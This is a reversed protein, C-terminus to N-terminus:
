EGNVLHIFGHKDILTGGLMEGRLRYFFVGDTHLLGNFDYGDWVAVGTQDTLEYVLNGWRNLIQIDYTKFSPYPLVVLDNIGDGNPTFVNPVWIDPDSVYITILATDICGLDDIVVLSIEQAGGTSFTINQNTNQWFTNTSDPFIWTWSQIPNISVSADTLQVQQNINAYVPTAAIQAQLGSLSATLPDLLYLIQCGATDYVTVSPNYTGTSPYFYSFQISDAIWVGNGLNWSVSDINAPNLITFLAGQACVTNDQILTPTGLPGGISVYNSVTTDDTCGYQDTISFLLTFSGSTVLTNDPNQLVSSNGNGFAWNWNQVTGISQSADTFDCFLPPCSYEGNANIAAGSFTFNPIARPVSILINQVLSDKCGNVDTVVLSIPFSSSLNNNPASQHLLCLSDTTSASGNIYWQYTLPGQGTSLSAIFSSDLECIVTDPSMLASPKTLTIQVTAPNSICGNIDTATIAATFVGNGVFTHNIAQNVSNTNVTSNNDSFTTSFSALPLGNTISYSTNTFSVPFPSCGAYNAALLGAVPKNAVFITQSSSSTCGAANFVLLSINYTGSAPYLYSVNPGNHIQQGNGFTYFWDNIPHGSFTTSLNSLNIADGKCITDDPLLFNSHLQSITVAMTISDSCGTTYNHVVQEIQYSGYNNYSHTTNGGNPLDLQANNFYTYPTNDNWEYHIAVSDTLEGDLATNQFQFQVPFSTPNCVLNTNPSFMAIPALVYLASDITTSDICGRFNVYLTIDVYGTDQSFQFNPDDQASIGQSFDWLYSIESSDYPVSIYFESTFEVDTKACTINPNYTFSVSDIDGVTVYPTKIITDKCGSATTIILSVNYLGVGYTQPPPVHGNFTQGNGFNWQWSVIPNSPTFSTDIFQVTFPACGGTDLAFFGAEVPTIEIYDQLTQTGSCGASSTYTLSVDYLGSQQYIHPPPNAGTYTQGDGFNWLYTGALTTGNIFQISGPACNATPNASFNPTINGQIIIQQNTTSSCGSNTNQSTLSVTYTGPSNYTM